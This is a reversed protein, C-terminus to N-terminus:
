YKRKKEQGEDRDDNGSEVRAGKLELRHEM